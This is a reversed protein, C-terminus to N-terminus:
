LYGFHGLNVTEGKKVISFCEDHQGTLLQKLLWIGGKATTLRLNTKEALQQAKDKWEEFNYAETDILTLNQYNGLMLDFIRRARKEGYRNVTYWYENWLGKSSEMWGKTLFYSEKLRIFTKGPKSLFMSICDDTKPIILDATSAKLGVLGNGCAGYALLVHKIGTLSDIEQQLKLRLKGPDVHYISDIWIVPYSSGTERVAMMLEDRLTECAIVVYTM